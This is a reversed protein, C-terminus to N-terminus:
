PSFPSNKFLSRHGLFLFLNLCFLIFINCYVSGLNLSLSPYFFFWENLISSYFLLLPPSLQPWFALLFVSTMQSPLAWLLRPWLALPIEEHAAWYRLGVIENSKDASHFRRGCDRESPRSWGPQRTNQANRHLRDPSQTSKIVRQQSNRRRRLM